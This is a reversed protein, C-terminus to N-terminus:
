PTRTVALPPSATKAPQNAKLSWYTGVFVMFAIDLADGPLWTRWLPIGLAVATMMAALAFALAAIFRPGNM